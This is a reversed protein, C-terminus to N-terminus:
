LCAALQMLVAHEAEKDFWAVRHFLGAIDDVRVM